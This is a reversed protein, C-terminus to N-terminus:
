ITSKAMQFYMQKKKEIQHVTYYLNTMSSTFKDKCLHQSVKYLNVTNLEKIPYIHGANNIVQKYASIHCKRQDQENKWSKPAYSVGYLSLACFFVCIYKWIAFDVM